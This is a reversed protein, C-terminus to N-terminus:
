KLKNKLKLLENDSIDTDVINMRYNIVESEQPLQEVEDNNIYSDVWPIPNKNFGEFLINEGIAKLRKNAVYKLYNKALEPTMGLFSGKEFINDIWEFEQNIAEIYQEKIYPKIENYADIFGESENTRLIKLLTQTIALHLNEDRCILQLVKGTREMFGQSYHMSWVTAFGSYFRVGELINIEVLLKLITKKLEHMFSESIPENKILKYNYETVANFCEDYYSAIKTAIEVLKKNDFSSDFIETPNEYLSRLIHTYSKSHKDIEFHQWITACAEFEPLTIISGFTQLMGRGQLSDLLILKQLVKTVADKMSESMKKFDPQDKTVAIEDHTWDQGMMKDSLKDFFPYKLVDYRQSNKGEGFFIKENSFDILHNDYITQKNM